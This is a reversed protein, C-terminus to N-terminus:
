PRLCRLFCYNMRSLLMVPLFHSTWLACGSAVKSWAGNNVLRFRWACTLRRKYVVRDMDSNGGPNVREKNVMVHENMGLAGLDM